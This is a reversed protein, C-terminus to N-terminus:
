AQCAHVALHKGHVSLVIHGCVLYVVDGVSDTVGQVIGVGIGFLHGGLECLHLGVVGFQLGGVVGHGVSSQGGGAGGQLFLKGLRLGQHVLAARGLVDGALHLQLAGVGVGCAVQPAIRGVCTVIGVLAFLAGVTVVQQVAVLGGIQM